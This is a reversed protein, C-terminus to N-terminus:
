LVGCRYEFKFYSEFVYEFHCCLGFSWVVFVSCPDYSCNEDSMLNVLDAVRFMPCNVLASLDVVLSDQAKPETDSRSVSYSRCSVM